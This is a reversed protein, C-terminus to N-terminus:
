PSKGRKKRLFSALAIAGLLIWAAALAGLLFRATSPLPEAAGDTAAPASAPEEGGPRSSAEERSEGPVEPSESPAASEGPAEPKLEIESLKYLRSVEDFVNKIYAEELAGGEPSLKVQNRRTGKAVTEIMAGAADRVSTSGAFVPTIFTDEMHAIVMQSAAIKVDYYTKNDEGARAIYDRYAESELAKRTVPVYGETQAYAVQVENSLLYQAFLWSALVEQEDAKNFICLSPGQSIMQVNDTDFQPVPLVVTEFQVVDSAHIDLLPAHSGIWTAGATSDVAFICRGANFFNGPYGDIKFTSFARTKVHEYITYLLEKTTDNFLQVEGRHTAYGAGKQRLMQIMMNDTSKYMFPIMIKQGNVKFLDGTKEMAKESIEWIWDWSAVEPIEYGMQEVMTKNVYLAESSRMFPLDYQHGDFFGDEMFKEVLEERGPGEFRLKEGGFGYNPDAMYEDLSIVVDQGKLYTAIHDPYSICVNPTTRTAINTIVDQYIKGYDSYPRIEVTINPYLAEFDAKAKNYIAIQTPNSDNKAWFSITHRRSLDFEKPLPATESSAQPEASSEGEKTPSEGTSEQPAPAATAPPATTPVAVGRGHCACLFAATM